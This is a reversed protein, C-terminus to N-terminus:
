ENQLFNGLPEEQQHKKPFGTNNANAVLVLTSLAITALFFTHQRIM